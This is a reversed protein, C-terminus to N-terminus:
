DIFMGTCTSTLCLCLSSVWRTNASAKGAAAESPDLHLMPAVAAKSPSVPPRDIQPSTPAVGISHSAIGMIAADDRARHVSLLLQNIVQADNTGSCVLWVSLTISFAYTIASCPNTLSDDSFQRRSETELASCM